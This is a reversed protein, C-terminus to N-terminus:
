RTAALQAPASQPSRILVQDITELLESFHKRWSFDQCRILGATSLQARRIPNNLVDKLQSALIDADFVPFYLAADRCMERQVPMDSAVIPTGAAMAEVMPHGFTEAYSPCVAVDATRYLAFLNSHDVTGLMTVDNVIGLEQMLRAAQTTDYRHDRVGEGLKTTLILEIPASDIRKLSAIGRLVTEFNRFYNYHSVMLVRRVGPRKSLQAEIAPNLTSEPKVFAEHNFGHHIPRFSQFSLTPVSECIADAFAKTPTVNVVSSRISAISLRRRLHINLLERYDGRAKLRKWHEASFYLPNRSLLIQPCPPRIMGFNGTALILDVQRRKAFRRLWYQDSYIRSFPLSVPRYNIWEINPSPRIDVNTDKGILVLWQHRSEKEALLSVFNRLYTAGGGASAGAAHVLIRAM